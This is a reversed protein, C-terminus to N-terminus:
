FDSVRGKREWDGYRTPEPGAPGGIEGTYPNTQNPWPKLPEQEQYPHRSFEDLKGLPTKARLKKQFAVLKETRTKPEKIDVVMDGGGAAASRWAGSTSLYSVQKGMQPLARATQRAMSQM